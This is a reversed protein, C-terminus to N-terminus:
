YAEDDWVISAAGRGPRHSHGWDDRDAHMKEHMAVLDTTGPALEREHVMEIHDAAEM